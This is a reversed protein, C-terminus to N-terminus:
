PRAPPAPRRCVLAGHYTALRLALGPAACLMLRELAHKLAGRRGM